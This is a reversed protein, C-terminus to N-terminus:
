SSCNGPENVWALAQVLESDATWQRGAPDLTYAKNLHVYAACRDGLQFEYLGLEYWAVPNEPQVETGRRYAALAAAEDGADEELRAQAFLPELSLPDLSRAQGAADRAAAV